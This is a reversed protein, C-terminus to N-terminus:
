VVPPKGGGGSGGKQGSLAPAPAPPKIGGGGGGSGGTATTSSGVTVNAVAKMTATALDAVTITQSGTSNMTVTFSHIGKDAASFTYDSPLAANSSTSSFHVKGVYGSAENGYADLAAVRVTFPTGPTASVPATISLQTALGAVVDISALSGLTTPSAVDQATITQRAATKFTASFSHVGADAATFTYDAPLGAQPDLSSFHVTGTYTAAVNGLNDLATVTETIPTGAVASPTVAFGLRTPSTNITVAGVAPTISPGASVTVTQAGVTWLTMANAFAHTGADAATFTDYFSTEKMLPDSSGFSVTGLFGPVPNGTADVASVTLPLASGSSGTAPVTVSLGVAGALTTANDPANALVTVSAANAEAIDSVGDLNFDGVAVGASIGAAYPVAPGFTGDGRGLEVQVGGGGKEVLDPHGDGNFDGVQVDYPQNGSDYSKYPQFSGDPNGLLVTVFSSTYSNAVVVDPNGDGNLDAVTMRYGASFDSYTKYPQFTGDGNGLEVSVGNTGSNTTALDAFGDGNFDATTMAVPSPGSPYSVPAIVSLVTRDELGEVALRLATSGRRKAARDPRRSTRSQGYDNERRRSLFM